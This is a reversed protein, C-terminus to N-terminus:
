APCSFAAKIVRGDLLTVPAVQLGASVVAAPRPDALVVALLLLEFRAFVPFFGRSPMSM